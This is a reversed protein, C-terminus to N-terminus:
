GTLATRLTQVLGASARRIQQLCETFDDQEGYWPDALDLGEGSVEPDLDRILVIPADPGGPLRRVSRAHGSTAVLVLDREHSWAQEYQRVRHAEGDLGADRLARLARPDAGEGVHYDEIGASDVAVLHGLDADALDARLVVEAMPSRCINGTCVTVIRYPDDPTIERTLAPLVASTAADPRAARSM